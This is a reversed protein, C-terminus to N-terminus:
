FVFTNNVGMVHVRFFAKIAPHAQCKPSHAGNSERSILSPELIVIVIFIHFLMPFRIEWSILIVGLNEM